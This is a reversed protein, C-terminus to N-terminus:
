VGAGQILYGASMGSIQPSADYSTPYVWSKHTPDWYPEEVMPHGEITYMYGYSPEEINASVDAGASAYAVIVDAGWVDGFADDAGTAVKAAAVVVREVSWLTQLLGTTVSSTSTRKIRDIMEPHQDLKDFAKQSLVVTNPEIGVSDAIATRATRIDKSPTSTDAGWSSDGAVLSVKHQADYNAPNRALTAADNELGLQLVRLPINVARAALNIGPVNAADQMHERPVVGELANPVIAYPKGAHGFQVRKTAGGPARRTNMLRFSEKGFEIVQGGYTTVPASPFLASWVLGPQRYGRAHQSLIPDIVRNQAPTQQRM